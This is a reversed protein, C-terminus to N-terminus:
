KQKGIPTPTGLLGLTRMRDEIQQGVAPEDVTLVTSNDVLLAGDVWVSRVDRPSGGFVVAKRLNPTGKYPTCTVDLTVLDARYGPEIRGVTGRLGLARAGGDWMMRLADVETLRTADLTRLRDSLVSWKLAEFINQGNNSAPGDSGLAVTVGDAILDSVPAPGSALYANSVPCSVVVTDTAALTARENEDLWVSHVLQTTPGLLGHSAFFEVERVGYKELTFDVSARTEACHAHLGVGYKQMFGSVASALASSALWTTQIAPEIRIRGEAAGDWEELFIGTNKLYEAISEQRAEDPNTGILNVDVGGRAILGRIGIRQFARAVRHANEPSTQVYHNELVSTVGSRLNEALGGLAAMEFDDPTLLPIAPWIDHELWSELSRNTSLGRLMSQFLHCHANIFGPMLVQGTTDVVVDAVALVSRPAAGAACEIIIADDVVVYGRDMEHDASGIVAGGSYVTRM